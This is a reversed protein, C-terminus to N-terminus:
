HIPCYLVLEESNDDEPVRRSLDCTLLLSVQLAKEQGQMDLLQEKLAELEGSAAALGM